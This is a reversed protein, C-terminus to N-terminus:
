NNPFGELCSLTIPTVPVFPFVVTVYKTSHMNSFIPIEIEVEGVYSELTDQIIEENEMKYKINQQTILGLLDWSDTSVGLLATFEYEKDLDVLEGIEHTDSVGEVVLVLGEAMPDLAGAHVAQDLNHENKFNEVLQTSSMGVPKCLPTVKM